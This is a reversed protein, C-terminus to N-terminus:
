IKKRVVSNKPCRREVIEGVWTLKKRERGIKLLFEEGDNQNGINHKAVFWGKQKKSKKFNM